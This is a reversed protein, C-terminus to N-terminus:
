SPAISSSPHRALVWGVVLGRRGRMVCRFEDPSALLIVAETDTDAAAEMLLGSINAEMGSAVEVEVREGSGVASSALAHSARKLKLEMVSCKWRGAKARLEAPWRSGTYLLTAHLQGRTLHEHTTTLGSLVSELAREPSGMGIAKAIVYDGDIAVVVKSSRQIGRSTTHYRHPEFQAGARPAALRPAAPSEHAMGNSKVYRTGLSDLDM